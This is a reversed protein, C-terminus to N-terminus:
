CTINMAGLDMYMMYDYDVLKNRVEERSRAASIKAVRREETENRTQNITGDILEALRSAGESSIQNMRPNLEDNIAAELRYSREQVTEERRSGQRYDRLDTLISTIQKGSERKRETSENVILYNM